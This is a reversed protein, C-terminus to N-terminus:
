KRKLKDEWNKAEKQRRFKETRIAQLLKDSMTGKSTLHFEGCDDCRYVGVPGQGAGYDNKTWLELLGDEAAEESPYRIKGSSCRISKM